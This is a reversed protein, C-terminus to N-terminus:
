KRIYLNDEEWENGDDYKEQKEFGNIELYETIDKEMTHNEYYAKKGTEAYIVKVTKLMDGLGKIVNLENGQADIWLVDIQDINNDKSYKELTICDVKIKSYGAGLPIPGGLPTLLSSAGQASSTLLNFTTTGNFDSVANQVCHLRKVNENHPKQNDRIMSIASPNADFSYVSVHPLIQAMYIGESGNLSGVDFINKIETLDYKESIKALFWCIRSYSAELIPNWKTPSGEVLSVNDYMGDHVSKITKDIKIQKIDNASINKM